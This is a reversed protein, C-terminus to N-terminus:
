PVVVAGIPDTTQSETSEPAAKPEPL